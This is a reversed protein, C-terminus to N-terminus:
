ISSILKWLLFMLSTLYSPMNVWGVSNIASVKDSLRRLSKSFAEEYNGRERLIEHFEKSATVAQKMNTLLIDYGANKDGQITPPYLSCQFWGIKVSVSDEDKSFNQSLCLETIHKTKVFIGPYQSNSNLIANNKLTIRFLSILEHRHKM